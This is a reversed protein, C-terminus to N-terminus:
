GAPQDFGCRSSFRYKLVVEGSADRGAECSWSLCSMLDDAKCGLFPHKYHLFDRVSVLVACVAIGLKSVCVLGPQKSPPLM